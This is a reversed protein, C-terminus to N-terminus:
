DLGLGAKWSPFAISRVQSTKDLGRMPWEGTKTESQKRKKVEVSVMVVIERWVRGCLASCLIVRAVRDRDIV